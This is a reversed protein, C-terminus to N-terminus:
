CKEEAHVKNFLDVFCGTSQTMKTCSDIQFFDACTESYEELVLRQVEVFYENQRVGDWACYNNYAAELDSWKEKAFDALIKVFKKMKEAPIQNLCANFEDLAAKDEASCKIWRHCSHFHEAKAPDESGSSINFGSVITLVVVTLILTTKM